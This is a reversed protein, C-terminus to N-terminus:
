VIGHDRAFMAIQTRDRLGLKGLINSIHTKVTGESIVLAAAIERNTAGRAIQRVVDRERESIESLSTDASVAAPAGPRLATLMRRGVAPDLQYIGRHAAYVAHALDHDPMDKLLYGIAGARLAAIIYDDEDFTTLMLVQTQPLVSLLQRTAGIGDLVPMRIDMLVIDPCLERAQVVAEAGNAATGVVTIGPQLGLLAAIGDRIMQQDDVVLVRILKDTPPEASTMM